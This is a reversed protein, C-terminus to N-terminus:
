VPVDVGRELEVLEAGAKDLDQGCLLGVGVGGPVLARRIGHPLVEDVEPVRVKVVRQDQATILEVPHIKALHQRLM